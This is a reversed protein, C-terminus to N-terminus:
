SRLCALVARTTAPPVSIRASGNAWWSARQDGEATECWVFVGALRRFREHFARSGNLGRFAFYAEDKEDARARLTRVVGGVHVGDALLREVAILLVNPTSPPLQRLKGLVVGALATADPARRLRTVELNFPRGARYTATFDPGGGRGYAEFALEFDGTRSCCAHLRSSPASTACPRRM